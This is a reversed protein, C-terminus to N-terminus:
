EGDDADDPVFFGIPRKASTRKLQPIQPASEEHLFKFGRFKASSLRRSLGKPVRPLQWEPVGRKRLWSLLLGATTIYLTGTRGEHQVRRVLDVEIEDSSATLVQQLYCELDDESDASDHRLQKVWQVIIQEAWGKPKKAVEAYACLLEALVSLHREFNPLPCEDWLKTSQQESRYRLWVQFVPIMASLILHRRATIEEEIDERCTKEGNIENKRGKIEYAVEVCRARLESKWAGEISTIVPAPRASSTRVQGDPSSRGRKAGTSLFLCFDILQQDFNAQEKNDLVLLGIDGENALAAVTCDGKVEGLGHLQTFRQAGTTKGQQSGAIHVLIFMARCFERVYPFLGEHIAVLWRMAPVRCAQTTVALREFDDLGGGSGKSEFRLPTGCPHEIWVKEPNDGNAVCTVSISTICLLQGGEVPIFLRKRDQSLFSFKKFTMGSANEVAQVQLRQIAARAGATVLSVNCAKIMLRALDHNEHNSSLLIRQGGLILHLSGDEGRLYQGRHKKIYGSLRQEYIIAERETRPLGGSEAKDKRKSM